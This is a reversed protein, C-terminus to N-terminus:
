AKLDTNQKQHLTIKYLFTRLWTNSQQLMISGKILKSHCNLM